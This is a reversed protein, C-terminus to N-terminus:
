RIWDTPNLKDRNHWVEFHISSKGPTDEEPAVSGLTQGQKVSDGVKVSSKLINGYVTYYDGHNVIIVTNYGPVVYVGSVKGGYVAQASAGANVQADIGPNDYMVSPLEPLPHRGFRSTIRFAGSVPRPLSGRMSAFGSGSQSTNVPATTAGNNSAEGRPRRRRADAFEKGTKEAEKARKEAAEAVAKQRQKEAKAEEAKRRAEAAKREAEKKRADNKAMERAKAEEREAAKRAEEAAKEAAALRAAEAKRAEEAKRAAEAARQAALREEEAKKAAAAKRAEEAKRAIEAQRAAEARRKEEAKRQEEAILAAVRGKLQNAESQKQALYTKLAEGNAKLKSVMADQEAYQKSLSAQAASEERLAVARDAKAQALQEEHARLQDVKESIDKNRRGRWESFEKLYRMRRMAEGFSKSSFIFALSSESKRKLRMAKVAKLYESRLREIEKEEGSIRTSVDAIQDQLSKVEQSAKALRGKGVEIDGQLRSLDALGKKVAEDNMKIERRTKVIEQQAAAQQKQMEKVSPSPQSNKGRGKAPAKAKGKSQTKRASVKAPTNKKNTQAVIEPAGSGLLLLLSVGVTLLSRRVCIPIPTPYPNRRNM